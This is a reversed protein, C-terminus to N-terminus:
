RDLTSNVLVFNVVSNASRRSLSAICVLLWVSVV